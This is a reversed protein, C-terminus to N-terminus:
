AKRFLGRAKEYEPHESDILLEGEFASFLHKLEGPKLTFEPNHGSDPSGSLMAELMLYGGSSLEGLLKPILPRLLFNFVIILDFPGRPAEERLDLLEFDIDLGAARALKRAKRLAVDSNDVGTVQFGRNALFIANRGEGCAVDLARRGPTGAEVMAITDQLFQSPEESMVCAQKRYRRNWSDRESEEM